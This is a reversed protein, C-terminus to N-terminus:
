QIVSSSCIAFLHDSRWGLGTEIFGSSYVIMTYVSADLCPVAGDFTIVGTMVAQIHLIGILYQM